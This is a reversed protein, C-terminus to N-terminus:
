LLPTKTNVQTVVGTSMDEGFVSFIINKMEDPPLPRRLLSFANNLLVIFASLYMRLLLFGFYSELNTIFRYEPACKHTLWTM